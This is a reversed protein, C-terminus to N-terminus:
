QRRRRLRHRMAPASKMGRFVSRRSSLLFLCDMKTGSMDWNSRAVFSCSACLFFEWFVSLAFRASCSYGVLFVPAKPTPFILVPVCANFGFMLMNGAAPLIRRIESDDGAPTILFLPMFTRPCLPLPTASPRLSTSKKFLTIYLNLWLSMYTLQNVLLGSMLNTWLYAHTRWQFWVMVFRKVTMRRPPPRGVEDMRRIALARQQENLWIARTTTPFDPFFIFGMCAIPISIIGDIIFLWRSIMSALSGSIGFLIM